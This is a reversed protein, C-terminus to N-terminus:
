IAAIVLPCICYGLVCISQFISVQGGLLRSNVSIVAAGVWVIVFVSAFVVAAQNEGRVDYASIKGAASRSLIIALLLCLVLLGWLDWNRMEQKSDDSPILVRRLKYGVRRVDRM